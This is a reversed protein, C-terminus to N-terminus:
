EATTLDWKLDTQPKGKELTINMNGSGGGRYKKYFPGQQPKAKYENLVDAPVSEEVDMVIEQQVKRSLWHFYVVYEGPPAGDGGSITGYKWKGDPGTVGGLGTAIYPVHMDTAKKVNDKTSLWVHIGQVPAGDVTITGGLPVNDKLPQQGPGGGGSLSEPPKAKGPCGSTVCIMLALLVSTVVRMPVKMHNTEM